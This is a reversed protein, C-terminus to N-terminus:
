YSGGDIVLSGLATQVFATTAIKTSNDGAAQTTTTPSGSFNPSTSSISNTVLMPNLNVDGIFLQSTAPQGTTSSAISSLAFEGFQLSTPAGSTTSTRKIKITSPFVM